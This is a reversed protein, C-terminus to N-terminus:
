LFDVRFLWQFFQHQHQLELVQAMQHSFSVWQFLGQHQSCNFAFSSPGASSSITPHCWQSLPCSNSCVGPSLSPSPLRTHQLGHPWLSDSVIWHSFLLLFLWGLAIEPHNQNANAEYVSSASCRKMYKNAMPIAQLFCNLVPDQHHDCLETYKSFIM